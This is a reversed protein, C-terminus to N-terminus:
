SPSSATTARAEVGTSYLIAARNAQAYALAAAEIAEAPVDCIAAASLLDYAQVVDLFAEYDRCHSKIFQRDVLGRDVIVKAMAGYLLARTGPRNQLFYDALEAVRHRRSDIVILKAGRLKARTVWGGITPLQIGLDVGDVLIVDSKALEGISNTTAPHQLM